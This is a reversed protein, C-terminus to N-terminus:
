KIKDACDPCTATWDRHIIWGDKRAQRLCDHLSEGSYSHEKMWMHEHKYKCYVDMSYGRSCKLPDDLLPRM